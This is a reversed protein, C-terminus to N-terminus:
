ASASSLKGGSPISKTTSADQVSFFCVATLSANIGWSDATMAWVIHPVVLTLSTSVNWSPFYTRRSPLFELIRSARVHGVVLELYLIYRNRVLSNWSDMMDAELQSATRTDAQESWVACAFSGKEFRQDSKHRKFSSRHTEM